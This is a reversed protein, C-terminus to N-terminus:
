ASAARRRATRDADRPSRRESGAGGDEARGGPLEGIRQGLETGLEVLCTLISGLGFGVILRGVLRCLRTLVAGRDAVAADTHGAVLDPDPVWVPSLSASPGTLLASEVRSAAEGFQCLGSAMGAAPSTDPAFAAAALCCAVWSWAMCDPRVM